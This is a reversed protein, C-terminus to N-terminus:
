AGGSLEGCPHPADSQNLDERAATRAAFRKILRYLMRYKAEIEAAEEM